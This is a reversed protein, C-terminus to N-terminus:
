CMWCESFGWGRMGATKRVMNDRAKKMTRLDREFKEKIKKAETLDKKLEDREKLWSM